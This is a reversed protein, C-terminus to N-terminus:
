LDSSDRLYKAERSDPFERRLQQAYRNALRADGLQRETRIGLWLTEATQPAVETYRQLYARASLYNGDAFSLRAMSKLSPAYGANRQLADRFDTEAAELRGAQELCHGANHLALWPTSYLPNALARRFYADADGFRKQECLFTGYANLAVPNRPDVQIAKRYAADAADMQGLRQQVLALVYHANSSQDDSAVAKLANKYAENLQGERLYAASLDIYIDAASAQNPQGLEGTAGDDRVSTSECGALLLVAVVLGALSRM